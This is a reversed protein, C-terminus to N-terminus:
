IQKRIWRLKVSCVLALDFPTTAVGLSNTLVADDPHTARSMGFDSLQAASCSVSAFSQMCISRILSTLWCEGRASGAKACRCCMDETYEYSAVMELSLLCLLNGALM